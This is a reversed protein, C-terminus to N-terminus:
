PQNCCSEIVYEQNQGAGLRTDYLSLDFSEIYSLSLLYSGVFDPFISLICSILNSAASHPHFYFSFVTSLLGLFSVLVLMIIMQFILAYIRVHQLSQHHMISERGYKRCYSSTSFTNPYDHKHKQLRIWALICVVCMAAFLVMLAILPYWFFVSLVCVIVGLIILFAIMGPHFM